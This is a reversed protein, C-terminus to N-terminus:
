FEEYAVLLRSSLDLSGTKFRKELDVLKAFLNTLSKQSITQGRGAQIRTFGKLKQFSQNNFSSWLFLRASRIIMQLLFIEEGSHAGFEALLNYFNGRFNKPAFFADAIKFVVPAVPFKFEKFEAKLAQTLLKHAPSLEFDFWLIVVTEPKLGAFGSFFLDAPFDKAEEKKLFEFLTVAQKAFLQNDFFPQSTLSCRAVSGSDFPGIIENLKQRSLLSNEGHLIYNM